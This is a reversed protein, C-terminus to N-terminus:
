SKNSLPISIFFTTGKGKESEFWIKGGSVEICSKAYFLGLGSGEPLLRKADDSRYFKTFIRGKEEESIATGSNHISLIYSEEAKKLVLDIYANEPAYSIANDLINKVAESFHKVQRLSLKDTMKGVKTAM